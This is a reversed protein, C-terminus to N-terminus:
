PLIAGYMVSGAGSLSGAAITSPLDTQADIRTVHSPAAGMEIAGPIGIFTPTAAGSVVLYCLSYRQGAVVAVSVSFSKTYGTSAAAFLTTDNPTSAILTHDGNSAVSYLGIRCLTPTAAAATTNTYVRVQTVTESKRAVFQTGRMSGSAAGVALTSVGWVFMDRPRTEQGVTLLNRAKYDNLDDVTVTGASETDWKVLGTYGDTQRTNRQVFSPATAGVAVAYKVQAGYVTLDELVHRTGKDNRWFANSASPTGGSVLYPRRVKLGQPYGTTDGKTWIHQAPIRTGLGDANSEHWCGDFTWAPTNFALGTSAVVGSRVSDVKHEVVIDGISSDTFTTGYVNGHPSRELVLAERNGFFQGAHIAVQESGPGFYAGADNYLFDANDFVTFDSGYAGNFGYAFGAVLTDRLTISGNGCDRICTPVRSGESAYTTGPVDIWMGEVRFGTVVGNWMYSPTTTYTGLDFMVGTGTYCLRTARKGQGVIRLNAPIGTLPSSIKYTGAPVYLVPRSTAPLAAVENIASQFAATSDTGTMAVADFDGIAGYRTPLVASVYTADTVVRSASSSNGFITAMIADAPAGVLSASVAADAAAAAASGASAAASAAAAAVSVYAQWGDATPVPAVLTMDVFSGTPLAFTVPPITVPTGGVNVDFTATWTWDAPVCGTADTAVLLLEYVGDQIEVPVPQIALTVPPTSTTVLLRGDQLDPTFTVQGNLQVADPDVDVDSGDGTAAFNSGFVTGFTVEAPLSM